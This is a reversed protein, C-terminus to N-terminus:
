QGYFIVLLISILQSDNPCFQFGYATLGKNLHKDFAGNSLQFGEMFTMMEFVMDQPLGLCKPFILYVTGVLEPWLPTMPFATEIDGQGHTKRIRASMNLITKVTKARAVTARINEADMIDYRHRSHQVVIRSKYKPVFGLQKPDAKVRCVVSSPILLAGAPITDKHCPRM